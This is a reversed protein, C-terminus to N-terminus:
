PRPAEGLGPSDHTSMGRVDRLRAFLVGGAVAALLPLAVLGPRPFNSLKV